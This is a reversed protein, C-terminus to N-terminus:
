YNSEPLETLVIQLYSIWLILCMSQECNTQSDKNASHVENVTMQTSSTTNKTRSHLYSPFTEAVDM